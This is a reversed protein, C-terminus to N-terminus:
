VGKYFFQIVHLTLIGFGFAIRISRTFQKKLPFDVHEYIRYSGEVILFNPPLLIDSPSGGLLDFIISPKETKDVPL